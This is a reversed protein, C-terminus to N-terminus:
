SRDMCKRFWVDGEVKIGFFKRPYKQLPKILNWPMSPNNQGRAVSVRHSFGWNEAAWIWIGIGFLYKPNSYLPKTNQLFSPQNISFMSLPSATGFHPSIFRGFIGWISWFKDAWITQGLGITQYKSSFFAENAPRLGHNQGGKLKRIQLRLFIVMYRM